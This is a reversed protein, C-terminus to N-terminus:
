LKPPICAFIQKPIAVPCALTINAGVRFGRAIAMGKEGEMAVVREGGSVEVSWYCGDSAIAISKCYSERNPVPLLSIVRVRLERQFQRSELAIM